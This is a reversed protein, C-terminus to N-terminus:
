KLRDLEAQMKQGLKSQPALAIGRRWADKAQATQSFQEDSLGAYYYIAQATDVNLTYPMPQTGELQAILRHFDDNAARHKGFIAPLEYFDLARVFRVAPNQPDGKVAADLTTGGKRLYSLKGPGPWADRSDLTYASGLYALLLYNGPEDQTWRELDATLAKTEKKDGNVAKEHRAVVQVIVPDSFPDPLPTTTVTNTSPTALPAASIAPVSNTDPAVPAGGPVPVVTNDSAPETAAQPAPPTAVAASPDLTPSPMQAALPSAMLLLSVIFKM